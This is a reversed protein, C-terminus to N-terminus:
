AVMHRSVTSKFSWPLWVKSPIQKRGRGPLIGLQGTNLIETVNQTPWLFVNFWKTDSAKVVTRNSSRCHETPESLVTKGTVNVQLTSM